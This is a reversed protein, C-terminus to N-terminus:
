RRTEVHDDGQPQTLHKRLTRFTMQRSLVKLVLFFVCAAVASSGGMILMAVVPSIATETFVILAAAVVFCFTMVSSVSFLALTLVWWGLSSIALELEMFALEGIGKFQGTVQAFLQRSGALLQELSQAEDEAPPPEALKEPETYPNTDSDM